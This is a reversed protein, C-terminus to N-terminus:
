EVTQILAEIECAEGQEWCPARRINEKLTEWGDQLTRRLVMDSFRKKWPFTVVLYYSQGALDWTLDIKDYLEELTCNPSLPTPVREHERKIYLVTTALKDEMVITASGEVASQERFAGGSVSRDNSLRSSKRVAEVDGDEDSKRKKDGNKIIKSDEVGDAETKKGAKQRNHKIKDATYPALQTKKRQRLSHASPKAAVGIVHSKVGAKQSKRDINMPWAIATCDYPNSPDGSCARYQEEKEFYKVIRPVDDEESVWYGHTDDWPRYVLDGLEDNGVDVTIHETGPNRIIFDPKRGTRAFTDRAADHVAEASYPILRPCCTAFEDSASMETNPSINCPIYQYQSVSLARRLDQSSPSHPISGSSALTTSSPIDTPAQYLAHHDHRKISPQHRRNM